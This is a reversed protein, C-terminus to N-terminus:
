SDKEQNTTESTLSSVKTKYIYLMLFTSINVIVTAIMVVTLKDPESYVNGITFFGLKDNEFQSGTSYLPLLIFCFILSSFLFYSYVHKLFYLYLFGDTKCQKFIDRDNYLNLLHFLKIFSKQKYPNNQFLNPPTELSNLNHYTNRKKKVSSFSNSIIFIIIILVSVFFNFGFIYFIWSIKNSSPFYDEYM